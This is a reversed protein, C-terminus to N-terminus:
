DGSIPLKKDSGVYLNSIAGIVDYYQPSFRTKAM